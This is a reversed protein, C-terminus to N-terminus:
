NSKGLVHQQRICISAINSFSNGNKVSSGGSSTIVYEALFSVTHPSVCPFSMFYHQDLVTALCLVSYNYAVRNTCPPPNFNSFKSEQNNEFNIKQEFKM